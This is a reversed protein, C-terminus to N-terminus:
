LWRAFWETIAADVQAADATQPAATDGPPDALAHEMGPITVLSVREAPLVDRSLAQWLQEAPEAVAPSDKEGVIIRVAAGKPGFEAARAVLDWRAAIKRATDHWEYTIGFLKENAAIIPALQAMPSVVALASV